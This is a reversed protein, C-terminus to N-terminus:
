KLARALAAEVHKDLDAVKLLGLEDLRADLIEAVMERIAAKLGGAQPAGGDQRPGAKVRGATRGRAPKKAKMKRLTDYISSRDMQYAAALAAVKEGAEYRRKIEENQEATLKVMTEEQDDKDNPNRVPMEVNTPAQTETGCKSCICTRGIIHTHPTVDECRACLIQVGDRESM